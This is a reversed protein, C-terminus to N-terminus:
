AALQSIQKSSASKSLLLLTIIRRGRATLKWRHTGRVRHVVGHARLLGLQRSVWASRRRRRPRREPEGTSEGEDADDFMAGRVDANRFGNVMWEGRGVTELLKLDPESMVRLGRHRKGGATVPRGLPLLLEALTQECEMSALAAFYRNNCSQSIRARRRADCVGKRLKRHAKKSPDAETGRWCKFKGADNITTEVRLVSGQKDYMKVSNSGVQHKIRMGQPRGKLSSTVQSELRPPIVGSPSIKSGLFRLVDVSGLGLMGGRLLKPYVRSLSAADKFMVDSAWESQEMSWYHEMPEGELKLLDMLRPNSRRMREGLLKPWDTRVQEDLARQAAAADSVWALCNDRRAFGIGRRELTRCLWERGNVCVRAGLPLWTCTRTHMWGLEEDIWYHYQHICCRSRAILKLLKEARCRYIQFGMFPEVSEILCVPGSEIGDRSAIQRAISEKDTSSKGVYRVERGRARMVAQGSERVVRTVEQAWADARKLKVGSLHLYAGLGSVSALMRITGRLLLRDFGSLCGMVFSAHRHLFERM